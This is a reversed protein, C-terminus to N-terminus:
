FILRTLPKNGPAGHHRAWVPGAYREEEWTGGGGETADGPLLVIGEGAAFTDQLAVTIATDSNNQLIFKVARDADDADLVVTETDAVDINTGPDIPDSARTLRLPEM